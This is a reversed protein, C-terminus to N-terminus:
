RDFIVNSVQNSAERLAERELHVYYKATTSINSHGALKQTQFQNGNATASLTCFTHRLSHFTVKKTIGANKLAQRFWRKTINQADWPKGSSTCFLWGDASTPASMQYNLLAAHLSDSILVERAKGAKPSGEENRYLNRQVYIVREVMDVDSWKLARVESLRMGTTVAVTLFTKFPGEAANILSRIEVPTLITTEKPEEKLNRIYQAPNEKLHKAIVATKLIMKIVTLHYNISRASLKGEKKKDAIYSQIYDPSVNTLLHYGLAPILYNDVIGKHRIFTSKKVHPEQYKTLWKSAFEAFTTKSPERYTGDRIETNVSDLFAEADAKTRFGGKWKQKGNVYYIASWTSGRKKTTGRAM